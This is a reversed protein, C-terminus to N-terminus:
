RREEGHGDAREGTGVVGEDGEAGFGTVTEIDFRDRRELAINGPLPCGIAHHEGVIIGAQELRRGGALCRGRPADAADIYKHHEGFALEVGVGVVGHQLDLNV